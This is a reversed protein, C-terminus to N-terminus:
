AVEDLIYSHSLEKKLRNDKAKIIVKLLEIERKLAKNENLLRDKDNFEQQIFICQGTITEEETFYEQIFQERNM